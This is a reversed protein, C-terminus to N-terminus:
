AFKDANTAEGVARELTYAGNNGDFRGHPRGPLMERSQYSNSNRTNEDDKASKSSGAIAVEAGFRFLDYRQIERVARM